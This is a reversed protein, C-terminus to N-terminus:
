SCALRLSASGGSPNWSSTTIRILLLDGATVTYSHALDSCTNAGSSIACTIVTAAYSITAGGASRHVTVNALGTANANGQVYLASITGNCPALMPAVLTATASTDGNPGWYGNASISSGSGLHWEASAARGVASALALAGGSVTFDGTYSLALTRDASLDGGGTLPTTTSITRSQPALTATATSIAGDVYGKNAADGSLTPTALNIIKHSNANLDVALSPTGGFSYAGTITGNIVPSSSVGIPLATGAQKVYAIGTSTDYWLDGNLAGVCAGSCQRLRWADGMTVVNGSADKFGVRYPTTVTTGFVCVRGAPCTGPVAPLLQLQNATLNQAAAPLSLLAVLAAILLRM